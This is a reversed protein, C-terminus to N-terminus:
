RPQTPVDGVPFGLSAARKLASDLPLPVILNLLLSVIAFPLLAVLSRSLIALVLGYLAISENFALRVIFGVYFNPVLALMRQEDPSMSKIKALREENVKGTWPNRAMAEPDPPRNLLDRLRSDPLLLRPMYPALVASLLSIVVMPVTLPPPTASPATQNLVFVVCVYIPVAAVFALWVLRCATEMPQNLSRFTDSLM